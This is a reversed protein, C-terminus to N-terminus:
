ASTKMFVGSDPAPSPHVIGWAIGSVAKFLLSWLPVAVVGKVKLYVYTPMNWTGIIEGAGKFGSHLLALM